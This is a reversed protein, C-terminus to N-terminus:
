VVSKRDTSAAVCTTTGTLVSDSYVRYYDFHSGNTGTFSNDAWALEAASDFAAGTLNAPAPVTDSAEVFVVNSPASSVGNVDQSEVFYQVQPLGADHFTISTTVARQVFGASDTSDSGFVAFDQVTSDPNPPLWSLLVGPEVVSDAGIQEGFNLQYVLGTPAGPPVYNSLLNNNDNNCAAVLAALAVGAARWSRKRNM